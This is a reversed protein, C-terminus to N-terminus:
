SVATEVGMNIAAAMITNLITFAQSAAQYSRQFQQMNSAEEDLNVGSLASVQSQLQTVSANLATNENTASSVSDGVTSVLNSYFNSPTEGGIITSTALSAAAVANSDDGVGKGLGAAAINDPNTMVVVMAEASGAVQAPANFIDGANGNNGALDTGANNVTNIQTSIGYALQDLSTLAAPINQDRATLLGGIQGGGSALASTIDTGGAFFHTVGNVTGTTIQVSAGESVLM